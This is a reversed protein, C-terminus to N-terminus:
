FISLGFDILKVAAPSVNYHQYEIFKMFIEFSHIDYEKAFM